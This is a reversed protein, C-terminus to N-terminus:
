EGGGGGQPPRGEREHKHFVIQLSTTYQEMEAVATDVRALFFNYPVLNVLAVTLGAATTILAQSIGRTVEQPTEVGASGLLAFSEIIGLVTGLIGLLPAMTIITDIVPLLRNM